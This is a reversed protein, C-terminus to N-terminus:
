RIRKVQWNETIFYIEIDELWPNNRRAFTEFIRENGAGVIIKRWKVGTYRELKEMLWVYKIIDSMECNAPGKYKFHKFDGVIRHETNVLDFGKLKGYVDLKEKVLTAGFYDSM